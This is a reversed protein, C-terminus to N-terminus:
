RLVCQCQCLLLLCAHEVQAALHQRAHLIHPQLADGDKIRNLHPRPCASHICTGTSLKTFHPEKAAHGSLAQASLTRCLSKHIGPWQLHQSMGNCTCLRSSPQSAQQHPELQQLAGQWGVNIAIGIAVAKRAGKDLHTTIHQHTRSTTHNPLWGPKAVVPVM